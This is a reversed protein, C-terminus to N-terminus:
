AVMAPSKGAARHMLWHGCLGRWAEDYQGLDGTWRSGWCPCGARQVGAAGKSAGAVPDNGGTRRGNGTRFAELYELEKDMRNETNALLLRYGQEEFLFVPWWPQGGRFRHATRDRRDYLKKRACLRRRSPHSIDTGRWGM